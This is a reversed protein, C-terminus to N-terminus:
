NAFNKRCLACGIAFETGNPPHKIKLTCSDPGPCKPLKSVSYRTLNDGKNQRAHCKQCFHTTGWCFWQAVSCCFKCKYEIYETGHVKCIKQGGVSSVSACRGCILESPKFNQNGGDNGEECSKHGGFYPNGCNYCLYYCLKDMAFEELNNYFRDKPNNLREKEVNDLGDHNIRVVAKKKVIKYLSMITTIEKELIPHGKLKIFTRCSPCEAFTFTIRPGPWRKKLKEILCQVHIIHGCELRISPLDGLGSTYCIPCYSDENQDLTFKPDKKVCDVALCPMCNGEGDFGLIYLLNGYCHHGCALTKKCSSKYLNVCENKNCIDKSINSATKPKIEYKCYRCKASNKYEKYSECTYGLHYPYELCKSCFNKGCVNCRARYEGMHKAAAKSLKNGENDKQNSCDGGAVM